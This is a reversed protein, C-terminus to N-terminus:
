KQSLLDLTLADTNKALKWAINTSGTDPPVNLGPVCLMGLPPRANISSDEWRM